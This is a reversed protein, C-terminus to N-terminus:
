PKKSFIKFIKKECLRAHGAFGIAAPQCVTTM